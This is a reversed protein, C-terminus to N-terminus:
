ERRRNRFVAAPALARAATGYKMGAEASPLPPATGGLSLITTPPMPIWCRPM